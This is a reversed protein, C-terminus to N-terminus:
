KDGSKSNWFRSGGANNALTMSSGMNTALTMSSSGATLASDTSGMLRALEGPRLVNLLDRANTITIPRDPQFTPLSEPQNEM